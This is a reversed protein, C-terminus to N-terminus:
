RGGARQRAQQRPAWRSLAHILGQGVCQHVVGALHSLL